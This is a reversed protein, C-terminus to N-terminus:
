PLRGQWEKGLGQHGDTAIFRYANKVEPDSGTLDVHIGKSMQQSRQFNKGLERYGGKM